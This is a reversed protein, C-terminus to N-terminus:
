DAAAEAKGEGPETATEAEAPEAPAASQVEPADVAAAPVQAPESEAQASPKEEAKTGAEDASSEESDDGEKKAKARTEFIKRGELCAAAISDAFLQASRIADDNGPIVTTIPDPDCNTDVLAIIPVGLRTAEKVAIHETLIDVIFLAEPPKTLDRVGGLNNVLKAMERRM